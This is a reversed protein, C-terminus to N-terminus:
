RKNKKEAILQLGLSTQAVFHSFGAFQEEDLTGGLNWRDAYFLAINRPGLKVGSMFSPYIGILKKIEPSYLHKLDNIGKQGLWLPKGAKFAYNFLNDERMDLPFNFEERWRETGEGLVYKLKLTDGLVFAVAVREIGIGRHIGELVMQFITNLDLENITSSLERLINLQLQPDGQMARSKKEEIEKSASQTHATNASSPILHCVKAAGFNLAVSAAEDAGDILGKQVQKVSKGTFKCVKNIVEMMQPSNWGHKSAQSIEEGLRVAAVKPGPDRPPYLAQELTEGLAWQSALERTIAKFSTGLVEEVADKEDLGKNQILEEIDDAAEGACSWFAMDGVHFLLASIFVEEKAVEDKETLLNRAQVGAHFGQAMTSLLHERPQKRLLSDIMMVSICIARVGSFGLLVIARSITNIPFNSPNYRVSNAIRLVQSTLNADRLIVEALHNIETDDSGTLQNLEKVVTALVPLDVKGLKDVWANLGKNAM